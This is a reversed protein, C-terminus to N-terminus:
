GDFYASGLATRASLLDLRTGNWIGFARTMRIGLMAPPVASALPLAADGGDSLWWLRGGSTEKVMGEGLLLPGNAMWPSRSQLDAFALLPDVAEHAAPAPWDRTAEDGVQTRSVIVARLPSRAPYFAIEAGFREGPVFAASRRGASAPHFDLLLAFRAKESGLDILWTAHSVLGDRRSGFQEGLVEWVSDVRPAEADQLLQERNETTAVTRRIEADEPDRRWANAIVVLRGLEMIAAGPREEPELPLLRSPMEDIHGALAGAKLDVMRAAIRRCREAPNAVFQDLGTRLQDGVWQDLEDMAEAIAARNRERRRDASADRRVIPKESARDQETATAISKDTSAPPPGPPSRSSEAPRRRALWEDVWDPNDAVQFGAADDAVVWM